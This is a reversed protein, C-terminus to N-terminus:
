FLQDGKKGMGGFLDLDANIFGIEGGDPQKFPKAKGLGALLVFQDIVNKM